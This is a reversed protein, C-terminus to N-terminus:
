KCSSSGISSGSSRSNSMSSGSSNRKSGCNMGTEAGILIIGVEEKRKKNLFVVGVVVM